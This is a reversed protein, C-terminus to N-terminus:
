RAILPEDSSVEFGGENDATIAYVQKTDWFLGALSQRHPKGGERVLVEGTSTGKLSVGVGSM